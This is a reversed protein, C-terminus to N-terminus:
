TAAVVALTFLIISLNIKDVSARRDVSAHLTDISRLSEHLGISINTHALLSPNVLWM